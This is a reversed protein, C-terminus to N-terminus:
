LSLEKLMKSAEVTNYFDEKTMFALITQEQIESKNPFKSTKLIRGEISMTYQQHYFRGVNFNYASVNNKEVCMLTYGEHVYYNNPSPSTKLYIDDRVPVFDGLSDKIKCVYYKM